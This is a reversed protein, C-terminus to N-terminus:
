RTGLVAVNSCGGIIGAAVAVLAVLAMLRSRRERDHDSTVLLLHGVSWIVVMLCVKLLLALGVDAARALPNMEAELGHVSVMWAFTIADFALAAIAVLVMGQQM